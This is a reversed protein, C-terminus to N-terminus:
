VNKMPRFTESKLKLVLYLYHVVFVTVVVDSILLMSYKACLDPPIKCLDPKVSRSFSWPSRTTRGRRPRGQTRGTRQIWDSWNKWHPWHCRSFRNIWHIRYLWDLGATWASWASRCDCNSSWDRSRHREIYSCVILFYTYNNSSILKRLRLLM